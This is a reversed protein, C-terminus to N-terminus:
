GHKRRIKKPLKKGKTEKLHVKLIQQKERWLSEPVYSPKSKRTKKAKYAAGFLGRQKQSVIPTHKRSCGKYSM